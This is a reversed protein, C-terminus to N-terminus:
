GKEILNGQDKTFSLDVRNTHIYKLVVKIANVWKYIGQWNCVTKFVLVKNSTKFNPLTLGRLKKKTNHQSNQTKLRKM